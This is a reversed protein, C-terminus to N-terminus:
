GAKTVDNDDDAQQEDGHEQDAIAAEEPAARTVNRIVALVDVFKRLTEVGIDSSRLHNIWPRRVHGVSLRQWAAAEDGDLYYDSIPRRAMGRM